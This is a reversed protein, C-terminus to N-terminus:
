GTPRVSDFTKTQLARVPDENATASVGTITISHAGCAAELHNGICLVTITM